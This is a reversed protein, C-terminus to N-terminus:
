ANAVSETLLNQLIPQARSWQSKFPEAQSIVMEVDSSALGVRQLSVVNQRLLSALEDDTDPREGSVGQPHNGVDAFLMDFPLTASLMSLINRFRAQHDADPLQDRFEALIPHEPDIRYSIENQNQVRLWFPFQQGSQRRTGRSTYVRKSTGQITEILCRLKKRMAYPPQASAKRVDIKWEADLGNPIDIRVRALKTMETQKALGFWTGWVILRKARYLYFGQNRVYGEPGGYHDWEAPTLRKHHPLTFTQLKIDHDGLRFVEPDNPERVVAPHKSHFPDFPELSAGNLSMAVRPTNPEGSLFRHFVLELHRCAQDVTTDFNSWKDDPPATVRLRDLKEWLVLTGRDGLEGAFPVSAPDDVLQVLWEDREAVFDLDWTAAATGTGSRSVVTLRRCQSFSATKLGLGFRGLDASGREDLPSRSGPRMAEILEAESMGAGDDVIAIVPSREPDCEAFIRVHKADASISNDVIDALAADLTYGIDRLSEILVSARPTAAVTRM